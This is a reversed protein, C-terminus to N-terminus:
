GQGRSSTTDSFDSGVVILKTLQITTPMFVAIRGLPAVTDKDMAGLDQLNQSRPKSRPPSRASEVQPRNRKWLGCVYGKKGELGVRFAQFTRFIEVSNVSKRCAIKSKWCKKIMRSNKPSSICSEAFKIRNRGWISRHLHLFYSM